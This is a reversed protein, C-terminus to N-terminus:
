LLSQIESLATKMEQLKAEAQQCLKREKRGQGQGLKITERCAAATEFCLDAVAQWDPPRHLAPELVKAVAAFEPPTYGRPVRAEAIVSVRDGLHELASALDLWHRAEGAGTYLVERYLTVSEAIAKEVEAKRTGLPATGTSKVRRLANEADRLKHKQDRTLTANPNAKPFTPRALEREAKEYAAEDDDAGAEAETDTRRARAAQPPSLPRVMPPPEASAERQAPTPEAAGVAEAANITAVLDAWADEDQQAPPTVGAPVAPGADVPAGTGAIPRTDAWPLPEPQTPPAPDVEAATSAPAAAAPQAEPAPQAAPAEEAPEELTEADMPFRQQFRTLAKQAWYGGEDLTLAIGLARRAEGPTFAAQALLYWADANHPNTQMVVRIIQRAGLKFGVRLKEYAQQLQAQIIDDTTSM